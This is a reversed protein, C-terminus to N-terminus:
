QDDKLQQVISEWRTFFSDCIRSYDSPDLSRQLTTFVCQAARPMEEVGASPHVEHQVKFAHNGTFDQDVQLWQGVNYPPDQAVDIDEITYTYPNTVDHETGHRRQVPPLNLEPHKSRAHKLRADARQFVSFCGEALCTYPGGKAEVHKQRVHRMLNGRRYTGTFEKNCQGCVIVNNDSRSSTPLTSYATASSAVAWPRPLSSSPSSSYSPPTAAGPSAYCPIPKDPSFANAFAQTTYDLPSPENSTYPYPSMESPAYPPIHDPELQQSILRTPFSSSPFCVRTNYESWPAMVYDAGDDQLDELDPHAATPQAHSLDLASDFRRRSEFAGYRSM